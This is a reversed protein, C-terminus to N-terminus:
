STKQNTNTQKEQRYQDMLNYFGQHSEILNRLAVWLYQDLDPIEPVWLMDVMSHLNVTNQEEDYSYVYKITTTRNLYNVARKILVLNEIDGRPAEYWYIQQLFLFKGDDSTLIRFFDGDIKFIVNNDEDYGFKLEMRKLVSELLQRGNVIVSDTPQHLRSKYTRIEEAIVKYVIVVIAIWGTWIFIDMYEM